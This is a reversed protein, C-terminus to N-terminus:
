HEEFRVGGEPLRDHITTQALLKSISAFLLLLEIGEKLVSRMLKM